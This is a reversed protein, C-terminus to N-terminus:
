AALAANWLESMTAKRNWFKGSAVGSDALTQLFETTFLPDRDHILYRKGKLIGDV